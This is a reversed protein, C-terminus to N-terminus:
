GSSLVRFGLGGGRWNLVGMAIRVALLIHYAISDGLAEEMMTTEMTKEMIGIYGKYVM